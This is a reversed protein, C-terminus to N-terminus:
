EARLATRGIVVAMVPSNRTIDGGEEEYVVSVSVGNAEAIRRDLVAEGGDLGNIYAHRGDPLIIVGNQQVGEPPVSGGFDARSVDEYDSIDISHSTVSVTNDTERMRYSVAVLLYDNEDPDNSIKRGLLVWGMTSEDGTEEPRPYVRDRESILPSGNYTLDDLRTMDTDVGLDQMAQHSLRVQALALANQGILTGIVDDTSSKNLKLAAPFIGAVMTLGIGFIVVAILVEALTLGARSRASLCASRAAAPQCCRVQNHRTIIM